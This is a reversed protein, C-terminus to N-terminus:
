LHVQGASAQLHVLDLHRVKDILVSTEVVAGESGDIDGVDGLYFVTNCCM